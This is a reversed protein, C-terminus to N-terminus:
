LVEGDCAARSPCVACAHPGCELEPDRSAALVALADVAALLASIADDWEKDSGDGPNLYEHIAERVAEFDM